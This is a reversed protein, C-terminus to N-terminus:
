QPTDLNLPTEGQDLSGTDGFNIRGAGDSGFCMSFSNATLGNSALISPVSMNEMGLGFLGNPAAGDLFSGTQIMGCRCILIAFSM